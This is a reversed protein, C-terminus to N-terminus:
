LDWLQKAATITPLGVEGGSVHEPRYAEGALASLTAGTSMRLADFDYGGELAVVLRRDPVLQQLRVALDAYDSSTLQLSALPDNRHADYGASIILWPPEFREIAPAVVEDFARRFVDGRTGPPLPLNLNTFPAADGGTEALRGTGPYLPSQHTSVYMVNPDNWFIDQTGNGHHVDWDVVAVREGRAALAAAAVAVNNFLCFGMSRSSEAHHGPPRSGAFALDCEGRELSDVADLVAGAARRATEWSGAAAYTDADIPGGGSACLERVQEVMDVDHVRHLEDETALRPEAFRVADLLDASGIGALSAELRGRREPHGEPEHHEDLEAAAFVAIPHDM